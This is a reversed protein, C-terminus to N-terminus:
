VDSTQKGPLRKISRYDGIYVNDGLSLIAAPSLVRCTRGDEGDCISSVSNQTTDLLRLKGNGRDVVLFVGKDVSVIELIDKFKPLDRFLYAPNDTPPQGNASSLSFLKGLTTNRHEVTELDGDNDGVIVSGAILSVRKKEVSFSTINTYGTIWLEKESWIFARPRYLGGGIHLTSVSNDRLDISRLANNYRDTVIVVNHDSQDQVISWPGAFLAQDGVGDVYGYRSCQGVLPEATRTVRDVLRVCNNGNDVVIVRRADLQIFGTIYQFRAEAGVANIYGSITANGIITSTTVGDSTKLANGDSFLLNKQHLIDREMHWVYSETEIYLTADGVNVGSFCPLIVMSMLVFVIVVFFIQLVLVSM